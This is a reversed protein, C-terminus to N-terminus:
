GRASYVIPRCSVIPVNLQPVQNHSFLNYVGKTTGCQIFRILGVGDELYILCEKEVCEEPDFPARSCFITEGRNYRPYLSDSSVSLALLEGFALPARPKTRKVKGKECPNVYGGEGVCGFVPVQQWVDRTDLLDAVKVGLADALKGLSAVSWGRKNNEIKSIQSVSIEAKEALQELTLGRQERIERVRNKRVLQSGLHGWSTYVVVCAQLFRVSLCIKGQGM